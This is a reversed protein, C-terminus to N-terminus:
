MSLEFLEGIDGDHPLGVGFVQQLGLVALYVADLNSFRVSFHPLDTAALHHQSASPEFATWLHLSTAVKQFHFLISIM